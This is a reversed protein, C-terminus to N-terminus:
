GNIDIATAVMSLEMAKGKVKNPDDGADDALHKREPEEVMVVKFTGEVVANKGDCDTPVFFGYDKMKVRVFQGDGKNSALTFWCGKKKCVKSVRGSVKILKGNFKAASAIVDTLPQSDTVTFAAGFHSTKPTGPSDQKSFGCRKAGKGDKNAGGCGGCGGAAGGCGTPKNDAASTVTESGAGIVATKPTLPTDAPKVNTASGSKEAAAPKAVAKGESPAASKPAEDSKSCGFAFLMLFLVTVFGKM